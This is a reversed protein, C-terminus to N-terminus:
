ADLYGRVLYGGLAMIVTRLISVRFVRYKLVQSGQPLYPRGNHLIEQAALCAPRGAADGTKQQQPRPCLEPNWM